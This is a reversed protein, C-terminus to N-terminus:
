EHKTFKLVTYTGEQELRVMYMGDKLEGAEKVSVKNYGKELSFGTNAIVRGSMDVIEMKVNGAKDTNIVLDAQDVVPNPQLVVSKIIGTMQVTVSSSITEKGDADVQKLRYYLQSVSHM